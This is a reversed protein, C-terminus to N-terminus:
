NVEDLHGSPSLRIRFVTGTEDSSELELDGGMSRALDRAIALGLGTGDRKSSGAFPKFLNERALPPLGPGSDSILLAGDEWFASIEGDGEIAQAANRILNSAIRHLHEADATVRTAPPVDNVWDIQTNGNIGELAAEEVADFLNFEQLDADPADSKGYELTQTALSIARRLARELRPAASQVRPDDSKSLNDSVMQAVSLSNRLDHTIKAVAEGLEALRRRQRFSESVAVEMDALANQARGIEDRRKTSPLTRTWSGPDARFQEVSETVRLMPKVVLGYLLGYLFAAVVVSIVLSLFLIRWAFGWLEEKLPAEDLLVELTRGDASGQAIVLLTRGDEAFLTGIASGMSGTMTPQRLDVRVIEGGQWNRAPLLQMRMGDLMEAVGLVKASELLENSLEESVMRSPDAELALAATRAAEIRTEIWNIRQTAASPMFILLEVLLIAALTFAFLRISLSDYWRSAGAVNQAEAAPQDVVDM